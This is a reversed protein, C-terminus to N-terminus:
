RVVDNCCAVMCLYIVGSESMTSGLRVWVAAQVRGCRCQSERVDSTPWGWMQAPVAQAPVVVALLSTPQAGCAHSPPLACALSMETVAATSWGGINQNFASAKEFAQRASGVCDVACRGFAWRAPRAVGPRLVM